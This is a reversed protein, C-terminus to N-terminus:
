SEFKSIFALAVQALLAPQGEIRAMLLAGELLAMYAKADDDPKESGLKIFNISLWHTCTKFYLILEQQAEASISQLEAAMMGCLCFKNKAEALSKFIGSFAMLNQIPSAASADIENLLLMFNEHYRKILAIALDNKSKFYYHISSTKIGIENSIDIYSFGNLGKIQTLHQAIDLIKEKRSSM